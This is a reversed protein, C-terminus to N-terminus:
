SKTENKKIKLWEKKSLTNLWKLNSEPAYNLVGNPMVKGGCIFVKGHVKKKLPPRMWRCKDRCAGVRLYLDIDLPCLNQSCENFHPCKKMNNCKGEETMKIM